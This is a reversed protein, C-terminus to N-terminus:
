EPQSWDVWASLAFGLELGRICSLARGSVARAVDSVKALQVTNAGM